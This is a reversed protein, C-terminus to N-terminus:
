IPNLGTKEPARKPPKFTSMRYQLAEDNAAEWLDFAIKHRAEQINEDNVLSFDLGLLHCEIFELGLATFSSKFMVQIYSKMGEELDRYKDTSRQCLLRKRSEAGIDQYQNKRKKAPSVHATEIEEEIGCDSTEGAEEEKSGDEESSYAYPQVNEQYGWVHKSWEYKKRYMDIILDVREDNMENDREFGADVIINGNETSSIYPSVVGFM